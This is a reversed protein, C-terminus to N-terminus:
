MGISIYKKNFKTDIEITDGLCYRRSDKDWFRGDAAAAKCSISAISMFPFKNTKMDNKTFSIDSVLDEYTIVNYKDPNVIFLITKAVFEPNVIDISDLVDNDWDDGRWDPITEKGLYLKIVNGFFEFDIIKYKNTETNM